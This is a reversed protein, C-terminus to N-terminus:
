RKETSDRTIKAFGVWAGDEHIADVVVQALFKTGDKRVRWGEMEFRGHEAATKLIRSPLGDRRDEPLFFKSFHEGIIEDAEYGKFRRAGANWTTIRGQPDLMYIAYDEVSSVLLQFRQESERLARERERRETIDRTIKAFGILQGADDRIPDLIANAWFRTGDKRVRWGEAEFRGERAATALARAPLGARLDEQTFFRSFHEGIIEEASYGKLREAGANWTVIRGEPDLMYLAYDTVADVLLQFTEASPHKHFESTPM